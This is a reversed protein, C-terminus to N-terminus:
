RAKEAQLVAWPFHWERREPWRLEDLLGREREDFALWRVNQLGAAQAMAVLNARLMPPMFPENNRVGHELMALDRFREGTLQFDLFRLLGGPRLIRACETFLRPLVGVPLEHVLMTSTVLDTSSNDLKTDVADSQRFAIQLGREQARRAGLRLCPASLDVGIVQADPFTQKLPWTSKGFGCGLDVIRRYNQRPLATEAFLRHFRYDDNEGLMVLKAGLEYVAAARDHSWVGGPQLHIDWETYWSPLRLSPDLTLTAPTFDVESQRQANGEEAIADEVARWLMKQSGRELWAFWRYAPLRHVSAVFDLAPDAGSDAPSERSADFETRLAPYLTTAWQRRLALVFDLAGQTAITDAM